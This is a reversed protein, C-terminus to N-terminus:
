TPPEEPPPPVPAGEKGCVAFLIRGKADHPTTSFARAVVEYLDKPLQRKGTTLTHLLDTAADLMHPTVQNGSVEISAPIALSTDSHVLTLRIQPKEPSPPLLFERALTRAAAANETVLKELQVAEDCELGLMDSTRLEEVLATIQADREIIQLAICKANRQSELSM